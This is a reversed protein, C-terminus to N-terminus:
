PRYWVRQDMKLTYKSSIFPLEKLFPFGAKGFVKTPTERQREMWHKSRVDNDFILHNYSHLNIQSDELVDGQELRRKIGNDHHTVLATHYLKLDSITIVRVPNKKSLITQATHPTKHNELLELIIKNRYSHVTDHSKLSSEVSGTSQSQYCLWKWLVLNHWNLLMSPNNLNRHRRCNNSIM